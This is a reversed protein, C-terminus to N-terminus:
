DNDKRIKPDLPHDKLFGTPLRDANDCLVRLHYGLCKECNLDALDKKRMEFIIKYLKNIDKLYEAQILYNLQKLIYKDDLYEKNKIWLCLPIGKELIIEFLNNKKIGKPLDCLIKLIIKQELINRLQKKEKNNSLFKNLKDEQNFDLIQEITTTRIKRWKKNCLSQWKANLLRDFSRLIVSYQECIAIQDRKWIDPIKFEFDKDFFDIPLFLEIRLTYSQQSYYVKSHLYNDSSEVKDIFKYIIDPIEKQLYGQEKIDAKNLEVKKHPPHPFNEIFEAQINFTKNKNRKTRGRLPYIIILLYSQLSTKNQNESSLIIDPYNSNIWLKLRQKLKDTLYEISLIKTTNEEIFDKLKPYSDLRKLDDSSSVTNLLPDNHVDAISNLLYKELSEITVFDFCDKIFDKNIEIIEQFIFFLTSLQKYIRYHCEVTPYEQGVFTMFSEFLQRNHLEKILNIIKTRYDSGSIQNYFNVGFKEEHELLISTLRDETLVTEIDQRLKIKQLDTLNM